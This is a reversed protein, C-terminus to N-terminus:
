DKWRILWRIYCRIAFYEVPQRLFLELSFKAFFVWSPTKRIFDIKPLIALFLNCWWLYNRLVFAAVLPTRHFFSNKFIECYECSLVQTSTEKWYIADRWAQWKTLFLGWCLHKGTFIAFNKLVSIKFFM